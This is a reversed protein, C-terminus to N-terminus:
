NGDKINHKKKYSDEMYELLSLEKEAKRIVFDLDNKNWRVGENLMKAFRVLEKLAKM